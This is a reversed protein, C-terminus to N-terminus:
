IDASRRPVSINKPYIYVGTTKLGDYLPLTQFISGAVHLRVHRNLGGYNPNFDNVNWQFRTGTAREVYDGRNDVHVALVNDQGGFLVGDTIDVGYATVGNESLGVPKGNLFIEGAQRMGEFELFVKKATHALKFHK